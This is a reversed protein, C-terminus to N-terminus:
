GQVFLGTSIMIAGRTLARIGLLVREDLKFHLLELTPTGKHKHLSFHLSTHSCVHMHANVRARMAPKKQKKREYTLVYTRMESTHSSVKAHICSKNQCWTEQCQPTNTKCFLWDDSM